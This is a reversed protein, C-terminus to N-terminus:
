GEANQYLSQSESGVPCKTSPLLHVTSPLMVEFFVKFLDQVRGARTGSLQHSLVGLHGSPWSLRAFFLLDETYGVPGPTYTVRLGTHLPPQKM